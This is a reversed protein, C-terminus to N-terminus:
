AKEALHRRRLQGCAGDIDAGLKRRVTVSVRRGELRQRFAEVRAPPTPRLDKGPVANIPILNVHCIMGRVLGALQDAHALTDNVGDILIYEFIMRRGTTKVYDRCAAIVEELPFAKAVPMLQSRLGQNPAHLSLCLTIPLNEEALRRIGPVLGCTSLSVHRLSMGVGKPDSLMRLFKLVQDYNDLPEGSGMLVVHTLNHGRKKAALVQGLMEGASLNRVVGEMTSACFACGMRCGVQTSLCLTDGYRYRMVVGEVLNGDPLAFLYKATEDSKSLQAREVRAGVAQHQAQLAERLSKPLNTMEDFDAGRQLFSFLQDARYKPQDMEGLLLRLEELTCDTLLM